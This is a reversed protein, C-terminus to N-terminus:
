VGCMGSSCDGAFLDTDDIEMRRLEDMPPLERLPTLLRTLFQPQRLGRKSGDRILEDWECAEEFLEPEEDRWRGYEMPSRYPCFVCASKKVRPWGRKDLWEVIATRRMYRDFCFPFRSKIWKYRSPAMRDAEDASFGIWQEVRYKTAKKRYGVGLHRRIAQTVVDIKFERTCQRRGPAAKQKKESFVWFPVSAFRGHASGVKRRVAEGIDGATAIVIPIRDSGEAALRWLNEYVWWPERQTDAFIALDPKPTLEGDLAMLYLASSQVGAGLSIVRLDICASTSGQTKAM